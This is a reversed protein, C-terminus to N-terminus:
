CQHHQSRHIGAYSKKHCVKPISYEDRFIIFSNLNPCTSAWINKICAHAFFFPKKEELFEDYFSSLDQENHFINSPVVNEKKREFVVPTGKKIESSIYDFISNIVATQKYDVLREIANLDIKITSMTPTQATFIHM